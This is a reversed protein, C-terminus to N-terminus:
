FYKGESKLNTNKKIIVKIKLYFNLNNEFECAVPYKSDQITSSNDTCSVILNFDHYNIVKLLEPPLKLLKLVIVPGFAKLPLKLSNMSPNLNSGM